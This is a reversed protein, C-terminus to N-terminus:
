RRSAPRTRPRRRSPAREPTKTKRRLEFRAPLPLGIAHLLVEEIRDVFVFELDKRLEEPIDLLDSKNLSPLLMTRVGARRAALAKEKIGGVPLVKGRLTIEGTMALRERVPRATVVSALSTAMTVGASPGDKPIAGAPVHLHFEADFADPPLGYDGAQSRLWSLAAEASEKMVDGLSGTLKLGKGPMRAAEIFLLDGGAATWALGTVVGPIPDLEALEQFYKPPGLVGPLDAARIRVKDVNQEVVKMAAKRHINALQRELERVGAERTWDRITRQIAADDITIRKLLGHNKALKPLLHKKAIAVKDEETYGPMEIVELRDLLPAPITDVLNATGVFTVQSLDV